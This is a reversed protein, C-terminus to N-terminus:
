KKHIVISGGGIETMANDDDSGVANDYVVTEDGSVDETWIKIRFRDIEHSDSDNIDADIASLMFKYEGEGNISGIGKYKAKAGAVVLWDYSDSHFNLDAVKFQFQTQGTPITAGKKYKSVFGFNAKGTLLPNTYYAGEPSMIWGGGTVFGGAPDYVVVYQYISTDGGCYDESITLEVTYVGPENYTHTEEVSREGVPLEYSYATSDGWDWAVTHTDNTNADTFNASATTSSVVPILDVTTTIDGVVPKVSDEGSCNNDIGDDCIEEADPNITPNTDDCDLSNLVAGSPMGCTADVPSNIDGYGDNDGDTYATVAPRDDPAVANCEVGADACVNVGQNTDGCNNPASVCVEGYGSREAPQIANCETGSGDATCVLSGTSYDGCSNPLSYCVEGVNFGEDIGDVSNIKAVEVTNLWNISNDYGAVAYIFGSYSTVGIYGRAKSLESEAINWLGTTGDPNIHAYEISSFPNYYNSGGVIYLTGNVVTASPSWRATNLKQTATTWPGLTDDSNIPAYEVTGGGIDIDGSIAYIYGNNAAIGFYRRATNTASTYSWAGLTGDSNIKAMEVTNTVGGGGNTRGDIAYIYGNNVVVGHAFRPTNLSSTMSWAGPTGDSNIPAYEVSSLQGARWGGVVYMYGNYAVLNTESRGTNLTSSAITWSQLTGDSNIPAYEIYNFYTGGSGGATYVYGNYAMVGPFQRAINLPSTITWPDLEGTEGDCDDDIGNCIETADPNIDPNTDDCDGQNETYGDCDNDIDEPAIPTALFIELDNGDDGYWVMFGKDNLQVEFDGLSNNTTPSVIDGYYQFIEDDNADSGNWAILGDKNIVPHFDQVYNNTVQVVDVGNYYFIEADTPGYYNSGGEFGYWVVEGNDNLQSALDDWTNDTIQLETIGNYLIIEYDNGDWKHWTILGSSNIDPHLEHISNNTLQNVTGDYHFIEYDNGDFCHWVIEGNVNIQPWKCDFSTNTIQSITSGNYQFIEYDNGDYGDWVINGADNIQPNRDDYSNNTIQTVTTDSYLYIEFDNGDYGSWVVEGSNNLYPGEDNYSNNTIQTITYKFHFIDDIIGDCNNDIGDCAEYAGPNISNDTDDCDGQNETYGDGDDDVDEPVISINFIATLAGINDSYLWPLGIFDFGDAFGLFLRTATSPVHFRQATGTLGDGIFFTQNIAPYLDAFSDTLGEARFDLVTPAPNVPENEDLFVGVLFMINDSKIGSIGEVSFIDTGGGYLGEAGYYNGGGNYSVLGTISSFTLIQGAQPLFSYSPPLIGVHGGGTDPPTPHGAGFINSKADVIMLGDGGLDNLEYLQQIEVATLARDYLRVDDIKGNFNETNFASIYATSSGMTVAGTQIVGNPTLTGNRYVNDPAVGNIYLWIKSGDYVTVVHIWLNTPIDTLSAIHQTQYVVTGLLVELKNHNSDSVSSAGIRFMLGRSDFGTDCIRLINRHIDGAGDNYVWASATFAAAGNLLARIGDCQLEIINSNVGDFYYASDANGFRDETLTAGYVTGDVGNGTEDNANGNFPYYVALGDDLGAYTASFTFIVLVIVIFAIELKKM